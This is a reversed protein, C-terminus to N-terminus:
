KAGDKSQELAARTRIAKMIEKITTWPVVVKTHKGVAASFSFAGIYAVKTEGSPTLAAILRANDVELNDLEALLFPIDSYALPIEKNINGTRLAAYRAWIEAIQEAHNPCKCVGTSVRACDTNHTM